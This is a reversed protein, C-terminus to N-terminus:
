INGSGTHKGNVMIKSRLSPDDTSTRSLNECDQKTGSESLMRKRLKSALSERRFRKGPEEADSINRPVAECPAASHRTRKRPPMTSKCFLRATILAIDVILGTTNWARTHNVTFVSMFTFVLICFLCFSTM